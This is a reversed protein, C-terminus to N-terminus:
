DDQEGMTKSIDLDSIDMEFNWNMFRGQEDKQNLCSSLHEDTREQVKEFVFDYTFNYTGSSEENKMVKIEHLTVDPAWWKSEVFYLSVRRSIPLVMTKWAVPLHFFRGLRDVNIVLNLDDLLTQVEGPLQVRIVFKSTITGGANGLQFKPLRGPIEFKNKDM